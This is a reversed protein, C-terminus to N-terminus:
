HLFRPSQGFHSELRRKKGTKRPETKTESVVLHGCLKEVDEVTAGSEKYAFSRQTSLATQFRKGFRKVDKLISALDAEAMAPQEENERLNEILALNEDAFAVIEGVQLNEEAMMVMETAEALIEDYRLQYFFLLM